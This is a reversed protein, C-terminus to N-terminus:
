ILGKWGDRGTSPEFWEEISKNQICDTDITDGNVQVSLIEGTYIIVVRIEGM